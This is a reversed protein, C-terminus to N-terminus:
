VSKPFKFLIRARQLPPTNSWIEYAKKANKVAENLDNTSGLNVKGAEEGTAPNFISSYRKSDGSYKKGNIFHEILKM